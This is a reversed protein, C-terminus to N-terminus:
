PNRRDKRVPRMARSQHRLIGYDFELAQENTLLSPPEFFDLKLYIAQNFTLTFEAGIGDNEKKCSSSLYDRKDM